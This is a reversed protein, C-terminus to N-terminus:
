EDKRREGNKRREPKFQLRDVAAKELRDKIRQEAERIIEFDTMMDIYNVGVILNGKRKDEFNCM